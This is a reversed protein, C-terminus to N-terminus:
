GGANCIIARAAEDTHRQLVAYAAVPGIRSALASWIGHLYADAATGMVAAGETDHISALLAHMVLDHSFAAPAASDAIPATSATM